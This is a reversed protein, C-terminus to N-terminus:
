DGHVDVASVRRQHQEAWCPLLPARRRRHFRGWIPKSLGCQQRIAKSTCGVKYGAVHEGEAVRAAIVRRQVEYADDISLSDMNFHLSPDLTKSLYVHLFVEAIDDLLNV